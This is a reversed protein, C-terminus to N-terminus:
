PHSTGRPDAPGLATDEAPGAAPEDDAGAVASKDVFDILKQESGDTETDLGLIIGSTVELGFSNLTEIAEYMPVAANHKKDIGALADEEPTEIGVFVTMFNAQRMLELIDPQKAMNLTAECAFQLPYHNKKQWEVLHPLMDKTAKRNGIFNDDVFYVVAPHGPQSIIADLEGLM